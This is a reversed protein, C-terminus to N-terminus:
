NFNKIKLIALAVPAVKQVEKALKSPSSDKSTEMSPSAASTHIKQM